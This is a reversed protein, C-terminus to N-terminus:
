CGANTKHNNTTFENQQSGYKINQTVDDTVTHKTVANYIALPAMILREM